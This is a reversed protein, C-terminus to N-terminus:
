FGFSQIAILSHHHAPQWQGGMDGYPSFASPFPRPAMHSRFPFLAPNSRFLLRLSKYLVRPIITVRQSLVLHQPICDVDAHRHNSSNADHNDVSQTSDKRVPTDFRDKRGSAARKGGTVLERIVKGGPSEEMGEM